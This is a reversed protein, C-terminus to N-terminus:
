TSDQYRYSYYYYMYYYYYYSSRSIEDSRAADGTWIQM